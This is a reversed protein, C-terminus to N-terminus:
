AARIADLARRRGCADVITLAATTQLLHNVLDNGAQTALAGPRIEFIVAASRHGDIAERVCLLGSCDPRWAKPWLPDSLWACSFDACARPRRAHRRCGLTGVLPCPECVPKTDRHIAEDPLPLYTCCATCAGCHREGASNRIQLGSM